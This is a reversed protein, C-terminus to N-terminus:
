NQEIEPVASETSGEGLDIQLVGDKLTMQKVCLGSRISTMYSGQSSSKESLNKEELNKEKKYELMLSGDKQTVKIDQKTIGAPVNVTYKKESVMKIGGSGSSAMGTFNFNFSSDTDKGAPFNNGSNSNSNANYRDM